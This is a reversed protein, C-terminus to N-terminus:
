DEPFVSVCFPENQPLLQLEKGTGPLTRKYSAQEWWMKTRNGRNANNPKHGKWKPKFSTTTPRKTGSASAVAHIGSNDM